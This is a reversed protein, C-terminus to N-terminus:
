PNDAENSRQQPKHLILSSTKTFSITWQVIRLLIKVKKFVRLLEQQLLFPLANVKILIVYCIIISEFVTEGCSEMGLFSPQFLAEPSRFRKNRITIVHGDPLKYPKKLFSSTAATSIEHDTKSSSRGSTV